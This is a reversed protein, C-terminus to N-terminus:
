TQGGGLSWKIYQSTTYVKLEAVTATMAGISSRRKKM